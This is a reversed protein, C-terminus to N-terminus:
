FSYLSHRRSDLCLSQSSLYGIIFNAVTSSTTVFLRNLLSHTDRCPFAASAAQM